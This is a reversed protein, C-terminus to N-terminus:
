LLSMVSQADSEWISKRFKGHLSWLKNPKYLFSKLDPYICDKLAVM